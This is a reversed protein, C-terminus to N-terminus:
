SNPPTGELTFRFRDDDAPRTKIAEVGVLIQSLEEKISETQSLSAAFGEVRIRGEIYEFSRIETDPNKDLVVSSKGIANMFPERPKRAAGKKQFAIRERMDKVLQSANLKGDEPVRVQAGEAVVRVMQDRERLLARHRIELDVGILVALLLLSVLPTWPLSRTASKRGHKQLRIRVAGPRAALAAGYAVLHRDPTLGEPLPFKEVEAGLRKRLWPGLGPLNCGGGAIFIKSYPFPDPLWAQELLEEFFQVCEPLQIGENRKRHEAAHNELGEGQAILRTLEDGGRLIVRVWEIRGDELACLVSKSAGLDLILGDRVGEKLAARLYCLPETDLQARPEAEQAQEVTAEQAVVAWAEGPSETFGWVAEELEFPLEYSLEEQIVQKRIEKNTNPLSLRRFTLEQSPLAYVQQRGGPGPQPQGFLGATVERRGTSAEDIGTTRFITLTRGM